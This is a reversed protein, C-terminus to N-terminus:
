GFAAEKHGICAKFFALGFPGGVCSVPHKVAFGDGMAASSNGIHVEIKLVATKRALLTM